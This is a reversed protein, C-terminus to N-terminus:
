QVVIRKAMKKDGDTITVLYIGAEANDLKINENFLGTNNYSKNFILRGSIDNVIIGIKSSSNSNFQLTFNSDNPNPYLAFDEFEFSDNALIL